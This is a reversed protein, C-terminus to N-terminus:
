RTDNNPTQIEPIRSSYTSRLGNENTKVVVQKGEYEGAYMEANPPYIHHYRKSSIGGFEVLTAYPFLYRAGVEAVVLM